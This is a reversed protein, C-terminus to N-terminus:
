SSLELLGKADGYALAMLFMKVYDPFKPGSRRPLFDSTVHQGWRGRFGREGDDSPWWIQNARDVRFDYRRGNRALGQESAWDQMDSGGDPITLGAPRVTKGDGAAPLASTSRGLPTVRL